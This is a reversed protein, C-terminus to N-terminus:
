SEPAADKNEAQLGLEERLLDIGIVLRNHTKQGVALVIVVQDEQNIDCIVRFDGIRLEWPALPNSELPKRHVTPRDPEHSM